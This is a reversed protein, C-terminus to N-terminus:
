LRVGILTIDDRQTETSQHNILVQQIISGQERLTHPATEQLIKVFRRKTFKGDVGPQDLLGDSTLFLRYGRSVKLEHLTFTRTTNRSRVGVPFREGRIEAITGNLDLTFLSIRAGAYSLHERESDISFIGVDFSEQIFTGEQHLMHGIRKHFENLIEDPRTIGEELVLKNLLSDGLISLLAGPVGHGTCDVVALINLVDNNYHWYFDGSVMDRPKFLIFSEAFAQEIEGSYSIISQQIRQAYQISDLLSTNIEELQENKRLLEATRDAVARELELNHKKLTSVRWKYGSYIMTATTLLFIGYAWYTRWWPTLIRFRLRAGKDNWFGDGNCGIVRFTYNGPPINTFYATRRQGVDVWDSNFGELKYKLRIREPAIFSIATYSIEFSNNYHPLEMGDKLSTTSNFSEILVQPPTENFKLQLPDIIVVGKLTPFWLKGDPAKYATGAGTCEANKMGDSEDLLLSEARSKKGAAILNLDQRSVRCIGTNSGLWFYGAQDELIQFFSDTHLGQRSGFTTFRGNEFRALGGTTCLWIVKDADEYINFVVDSPLGNKSTYTRLRGQELYSVGGGNTGAWIRGSSDEFLSSIVNIALGHETTYVTFTENNLLILGRSTGIWLKGSRDELMARVSVSRLTLYPDPIAKVKGSGAVLRFLGNGNSGLFLQGKSDVMSSRFVINPTLDRSAYSEIRGNRLRSVGDSTCIWVGGARDSQIQWVVNDVLGEDLTITLVKGNKLCNLGNRYTGVWINGEKDEFLCQIINNSLGQAETFSDFKGQYYRWLSESLTGIWLQGDRDLVLSVVPHAFSGELKFYKYGSATRRILGKDITGIWMTGRQDSVISRIPPNNLFPEHVLRYGQATREIRYLGSDSGIWIRHEDSCITTVNEYYRGDITNIAQFQRKGNAEWSYVLGKRTGIWLGGETDEFLSLIVESNLGDKMTYNQWVGNRMSVLGGGNTGVWLTGDRTEKVAWIGNATFANTNSRNYVTFKVGDFRALGEYTGIWLYDNASQTINLISSSPLGDKKQLVSLQYQTIARAPDLAYSSTASLLSVLVLALRIISEVLNLRM